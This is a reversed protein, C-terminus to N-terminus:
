VNTTISHSKPTIRNEQQIAKCTFQSWGYTMYLPPPANIGFQGQKLDPKARSILPVAATLPLFALSIALPRAPPGPLECTFAAPLRRRDLRSGTM